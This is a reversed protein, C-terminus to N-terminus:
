LCFRRARSKWHAAGESLDLGAQGWCATVLSTCVSGWPARSAWPARQVSQSNVDGQFTSPSGLRQSNNQPTSQFSAETGLKLALLQWPKTRVLWYNEVRRAREREREREIWNSARCFSRVQEEEKLGSHTDDRCDNKMRGRRRSLSWRFFDFRCM